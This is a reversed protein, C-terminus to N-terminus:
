VPLLAASRELMATVLVDAVGCGRVYRMAKEELAFFLDPQQKELHRRMFVVALVTAWVQETAQFEKGADVAERGLIGEFEPTVAFSGDFTQLLVLQTTQADINTTPTSAQPQVSTLSDLWSASPCRSSAGRARFGSPDRGLGTKTGPNPVSTSPAARGYSSWHNTGSDECLPDYVDDMVNSTEPSASSPPMQNVSARPPSRAGYEEQGGLRPDYGYTEMYWELEEDVSGTTDKEPDSVVMAARSTATKEPRRSLKPAASWSPMTPLSGVAHPVAHFPSPFFSRTRRPLSIDRQGTQSSHDDVAVLSTYKTVLKYRKALTLIQKVDQVDQDDSQLRRIIDRAALTHVLHFQSQDPTSPLEEVPVEYNILRSMGAVRVVVSVKKPVVYGRKDVLAYRTFPRGAIVSM